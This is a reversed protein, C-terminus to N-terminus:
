NWCSNHAHCPEAPTHGIDEGWHSVMPISNATWLLDQTGAMQGPVGWLAVQKKAFDDSTAWGGRQKRQWLLCLRGEGRRGASDPQRAIILNILDSSRLLLPSMSSPVLPRIFSAWPPCAAEKSCWPERLLHLSRYCGWPRWCPFFPSPLVHLFYECANYLGFEGRVRIQTAENKLQWELLALRIAETKSPSLSKLLLGCLM